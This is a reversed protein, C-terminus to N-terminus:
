VYKPRRQFPQYKTKVERKKSHFVPVNRHKDMPKLAVLPEM